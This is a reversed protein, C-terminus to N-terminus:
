WGSRAVRAPESSTSCTRKDQIERRGRDLASRDTDVGVGTTGRHAEAIRLLLEGWGCGLDVVHGGPALALAEVLRGARAEGLPANFALGAHALRRHDDRM